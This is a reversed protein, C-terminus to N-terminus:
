IWCLTMIFVQIRVHMDLILFDELTKEVRWREKSRNNIIDDRTERVISRVSLITSTAAGKNDSTNPKVNIGVFKVRTFPFEDRILMAIPKKDIALSNTDNGEALTVTDDCEEYIAFGNISDSSSNYLTSSDSLLSETDDDNQDIITSDSSSQTYAAKSMHSSSSAQNDPGRSRTGKEITNQENTMNM